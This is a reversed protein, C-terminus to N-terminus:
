VRWNHARRPDISSQGPNPPTIAYRRMMMAYRSASISDDILKVVGHDDRRYIRFEQLWDTMTSFVKWKGSQMRQLMEFLGAEVSVRSVRTEGDTGVEPFQAMEHLMNIGNSRYQEAMQIGTGKEHQLADHPWAVPIWDGRQKILPSIEAPTKESLRIADYLYLTDSDPDIAIWVVATPHDWGIDMGAIIRWHSPIVFPDVVILSEDIPFIRGKGLVPLGRSRADRLHLPTSDLMERKTKEDLHPVDDWGAMVLYKSETIKPM